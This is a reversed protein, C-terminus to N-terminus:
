RDNVPGKQWRLARWDRMKYYDEIHEWGEGDGSRWVYGNGILEGTYIGAGWAANM